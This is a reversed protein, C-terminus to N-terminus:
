GIIEITLNCTRVEVMTNLNCETLEIVLNCITCDQEFRNIEFLEISKLLLYKLLMLYENLCDYMSKDIAKGLAMNTLYKNILGEVRSIEKTIKYIEQM